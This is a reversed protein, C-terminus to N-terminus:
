RSLLRDFVGQWWDRSDDYIGYVAAAGLAALTAIMVMSRRSAATRAKEGRKRWIWEANTERFLKAYGPNQFTFRRWSPEFMDSLDDTFDVASTISTPPACTMYRTQGMVVWFCTAGVGWFFALVGLPILGALGSNFVMPLLKPTLFLGIGSNAVPGFSTGGGKWLRRFFVDMGPRKVQRMHAAACSACFLPYFTTVRPESDDQPFVRDVTIPTNAPQLCHPCAGPFRLGKDEVPITLQQEPDLSPIM